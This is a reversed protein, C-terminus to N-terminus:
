VDTPRCAIRRPLQPSPTLDCPQRADRLDMDSEAPDRGLGGAGRAGDGREAAPARFLALMQEDGVERAPLDFAIRGGRLAVIRAFYRRALSPQHLSVLLTRRDREATAILLELIEEARAPDVSAVPEDALILHADQFVARAIAVRQREGGSLRDTRQLFREELGVQAAVARAEALLAAPPAVFVRAPTLGSWRGLRGALINKAVSLRGVVDHHQHITAIRARLARRDRGQLRAVDTGDIVVVGADQRVSLNLIGFLTTKGAGSPGVLAVREGPRVALDIGGLAATKGYSRGMDSLQIM